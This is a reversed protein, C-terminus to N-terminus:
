STAPTRKHHLGKTRAGGEIAVDIEPHDVFSPLLSQIYELWDADEPIYVGGSRVGFIEPQDVGPPATADKEFALAADILRRRTRIIMMDSTGLHEITRDLVPGMSVQVATDEPVAGGAIGTYSGLERQEERDIFYDNEFNQKMRYRGYWDTTNPLYEFGSDRFDGFESREAPRQRGGGMTQDTAARVNFVMTHTDDMPVWATNMIKKGLVGPGPSTWFPFLFLGIRWYNQGDGAPRYGGYIAGYDTDVSAFRAARHVTVYYNFTGENFYEPEQEGGHLFASHVTDIDGELAQLWNVPRMYMSANCQGEPLLTAEIGPMEPPTERSGMYAWVIGAREQCPYATAKIRNKFNSEAPENPMDVCNGLTDFKWGHYVCRIGNEENRGFFLSAGRHTCLNAILGVTGSTDRFGILQEGFLMVRVPDCDPNPLEQSLMAPVWYERLMTGMLTGPGIKTILENEEQALM